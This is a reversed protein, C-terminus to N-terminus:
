KRGELRGVLFGAIFSRLMADMPEVDPHIHLAEVGKERLTRELNRLLDATHRIEWLVGSSVRLAPDDVGSMGTVIGEESEERAIPGDPPFIADEPIEGEMPSIPDDPSYLAEDPITSATEEPTQSNGPEADAAGAPTQNDPLNPDETM